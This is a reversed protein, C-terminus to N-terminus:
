KTWISLKEVFFTLALRCNDIDNGFGRTPKHLINGRYILLRNFVNEILITNNDICLSTGSESPAKSNLYLVGAFISNGDKHWWMTKDDIIKEPLYHFYSNITYDFSTSLNFEYFVKLFIENFTKEFLQKDLCHFLNSRYGYWNFSKSPEEDTTKIDKIEESVGRKFYKLTKSFDILTKPDSLINDFVIYNKFM